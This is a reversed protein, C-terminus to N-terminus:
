PKVEVLEADDGMYYVRAGADILTRKERLAMAEEPFVVRVMDYERGDPLATASALEFIEMVQWGPVHTGEEVYGSYEIAREAEVYGVQELVTPDRRFIPELEPTLEAGYYTTRGPKAARAMAWQDDFIRDLFVATDITDIGRVLLVTSAIREVSDWRANWFASPEDYAASVERDSTAVAHTHADAVPICPVLGGPEGHRGLHGLVPGGQALARMLAILRSVHGGIQGADLGEVHVRHKLEWWGHREDDSAVGLSGQAADFRIWADKVSARPAPISDLAGRRGPGDSPLHWEGSPAFGASAAAAVLRQLVAGLSTGPIRATLMVDTMAITM